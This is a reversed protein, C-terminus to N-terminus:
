GWGARKRESGKVKRRRWDGTARREEAQRSKQKGTEQERNQLREAEGETSTESDDGQHSVTPADHTTNKKEKRRLRNSTGRSCGYWLYCELM